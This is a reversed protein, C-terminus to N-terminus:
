IAFAPTGDIIGQPDLLYRNRAEHTFYRKNILALLTQLLDVNFFDAGDLEALTRGSFNLECVQRQGSGEEDEQYLPAGHSRCLIPRALYILCDGEVTLFRCCGPREEVTAVREQIAPHRQLFLKVHHQEVKSVSIGPQCCASCGKSCRMEAAHRSAIDAFKADVKAVLQSYEALEGM